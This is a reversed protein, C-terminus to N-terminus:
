CDKEAEVDLLTMGFFEKNSDIAVPARKEWPQFGEGKHPSGCCDIYFFEQPAPQFQALQCNVPLPKDPMEGKIIEESEDRTESDTIIPNAPKQSEKKKNVLPKVIMWLTIVGFLVFIIIQISM